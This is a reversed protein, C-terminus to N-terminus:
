CYEVLPYHESRGNPLDYHWWENSISQLGVSEMLKKLFERNASAEKSAGTYDHRAQILYEFFPALNGSQVQKAYVEDFADVKTPYILEKGDPSCLCVDVATAHCHQSRDPTSAFFGSQPIIEVLRQHALPPRYADCIKMKLKQQKLIPVLKQMCQWMDKHVFARNGLGIENYVAVGTMNNKLSAYMMDIIFVDDDKIEILDSNM